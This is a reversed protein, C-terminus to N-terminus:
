QSGCIAPCITCGHQIDLTPVVQWRTRRRSPVPECVCRGLGASAGGNGGYREGGLRLEDQDAESTLRGKGM